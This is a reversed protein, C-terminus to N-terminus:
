SDPGILDCYMFRDERLVREGRTVAVPHAFIPGDHVFTHFEGNEGCPDASSPLDRLLSADFDRGAFDSTVQQTDVCALVARFGDEIFRRALTDTPEQWIPFIPEIGTGEMMRVRYDRVDQLFLDGFAIAEIEAKRANRMAELMVARYTADDCGQPIWTPWLPLGLADAQRRLLDERVGHMSIRAHERTLTTLLGVPEWADDALLARLALSSDKGGSWAVLARKM